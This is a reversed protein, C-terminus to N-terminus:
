RRAAVSPTAITATRTTLSGALWVLLVALLVHLIGKYPSYPLPAAVAFVPPVVLYAFAAARPVMRGRVLALGFVVSGVVFVAVSALIAVAVPGRVVHSVTADDLHILVLDKTYAAAGFWGLGLLNLAFGTTGLRGTTEAQRVHLAVILPLAFFASLGLVLSTITTKGIISEIIGPIGIALGAVTGGIAGFRNLFTM